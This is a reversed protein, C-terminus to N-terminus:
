GQLLVRFSAGVGDAAEVWARGGHLQAFRAVLSLGIGAGPSAGSAVNRRFPEFISTRLDDPVGPGDDDVVLLLGDATPTARVRITTEAPTHRAANDVLHEVIREFQAPDLDAQLTAPTVEVEISRDGVQVSRMAHEVAEAITVPARQARLVGRALRDLDLLDVLLRGLRDANSRIRRAIDLAEPPLRDGYQDALLSSFGVVSTLPTRLEHSLSRLFVDREAEDRRRAAVDVFSQVVHVQDAPFETGDRRRGRVPGPREPLLVDIPQGVVEGALHGFAREAGRNFGVIRQDGDVTVIADTAADLVQGSTPGEGLAEISIRRLAARGAVDLGAVEEVVRALAGPEFPKVLYATAGARLAALQDARGVRASSMVVPISPVENAGVLRRLVELGDLDPLTRDLLIVDADVTAAAAVGDAGSRATVVEHGSGELELTCLLAVDDDDEILLVRM